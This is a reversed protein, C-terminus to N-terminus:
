DFYVFYSPLAEFLLPVYLLFSFPPDFYFIFSSSFNEGQKRLHDVNVVELHSELLLIVRCHCFLLVKCIFFPFILLGM